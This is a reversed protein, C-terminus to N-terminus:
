RLFLCLLHFVIDLGDSFQCIRLTISDVIGGDTEQQGVTARQTKRLFRQKKGQFRLSVVAVLVHRLKIPATHPIEHDTPLRRLQEVVRIEEDHGVRQLSQLLQRGAM